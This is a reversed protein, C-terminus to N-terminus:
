IKAGQTNKERKEERINKIQSTSRVPWIKFDFEPKWKTFFNNLRQNNKKDQLM